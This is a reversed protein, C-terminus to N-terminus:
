KVVLVSTQAHHVVKDSISGLLFRKVKGLGKDAIVIM